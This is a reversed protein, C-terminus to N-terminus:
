SVGSDFSNRLDKWSWFGADVLDFPKIKPFRNLARELIDHTGLVHIIEGREYSALMLSARHVKPGHGAGAKDHKFWPPESLELGRAAERYVSEWTDGGQDTEVGVAEAKLEVAKRLARVMADQPSTRDEWSWLRYIKGNVGLGDAQIGQSDSEDTDTVAPDLWVVIRVLAPLEDWTCHLFTLHNFMGGPPDEVEHQAEKPFASLGITNMLAQCRELDQGAWTPEGATIM